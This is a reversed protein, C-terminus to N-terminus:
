SCDITFFVVLIRLSSCATFSLDIEPRRWCSSVTKRTGALDYTAAM